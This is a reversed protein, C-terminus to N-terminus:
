VEVGCSPCIKIAKQKKPKEDEPYFTDTAKALWEPSMGWDLLAEVDFSNALMEINFEGNSVNSRINVRDLEDEKLLKNPVLVEIEDTLKYGAKLLAKKRQHGGIITNDQNVMIRTHYGDQELSEVLKEFAIEGIQRPNQGYEKLDKIKRKEPHWQIRDKM